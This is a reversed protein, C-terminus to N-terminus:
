GSLENFSHGTTALSLENLRDLMEARAAKGTETDGYRRAQAINEVLRQQYILADDYRHHGLKVQSLLQELGAEYLAYVDRRLLTGAPNLVAAIAERSAPYGLLTSIASMVTREAATLGADVETLLYREINKAELLRDVLRAPHKASRLADI